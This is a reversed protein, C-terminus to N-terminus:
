WDSYPVFYCGKATSPAGGQGCGRVGWKSMDVQRCRINSMGNSKKTTSHLEEWVICENKSIKFQIYVSHDQIYEMKVEKKLKDVHTEKM